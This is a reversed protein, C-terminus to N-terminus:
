LYNIPSVLTDLTVRKNLRLIGLQSLEKAIDNISPNPILSQGPIKLKKSINKKKQKREKKKVLGLKFYQNEL